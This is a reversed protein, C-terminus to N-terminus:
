TEKYDRMGFVIDTKVIHCRVSALPVAQVLLHITEHHGKLAPPTIVVPRNHPVIQIQCVPQEGQDQDVDVGLM